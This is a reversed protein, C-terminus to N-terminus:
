KCYPEFIIELYDTINQIFMLDELKKFTNMFNKFTFSKQAIICKKIVDNKLSIKQFNLISEFGQVYKDFDM